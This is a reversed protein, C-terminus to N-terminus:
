QEEGESGLASDVNKQATQIHQFHTSLPGPIVSGPPDWGEIRFLLNGSCLSPSLKKYFAMGKVVM